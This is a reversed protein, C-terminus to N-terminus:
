DISSLSLREACDVIFTRMEERQGQTPLLDFDFYHQKMIEQKHKTVKGAKECCPLDKVYLRNKLHVMGGKGNEQWAKKRNM